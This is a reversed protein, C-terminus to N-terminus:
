ESKTASADADAGINGGGEPGFRLISEFLIGGACSLNGLAFPKSRLRLDAEVLRRVDNRHFATWKDLVRRAPAHNDGFATCAKATKALM